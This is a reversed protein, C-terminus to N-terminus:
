LDTTVFNWFISENYVILSFMESQDPSTKFIHIELLFSGPCPLALLASGWCDSFADCQGLWLLWLRFLVTKIKSFGFSFWVLWFAPCTTYDISLVGHVNVHKIKCKLDSIQLTGGCELALSTKLFLESGAAVRSMSHAAFIVMCNVPAGTRNPQFLQGGFAGSKAFFNAAWSLWVQLQTVVALRWSLSVVPRPPPM